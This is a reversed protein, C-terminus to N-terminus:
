ISEFYSSNNKNVNLLVIDYEFNAIYDFIQKLYKIMIIFHWFYFKQDFNILM